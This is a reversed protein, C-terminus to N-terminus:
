AASEVAVVGTPTVVADRIEGTATAASWVVARRLRAGAAVRAGADVVVEPGVEAGAEIEAGAAIRV